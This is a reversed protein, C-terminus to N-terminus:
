PEVHLVTLKPDITRAKEINAVPIHHLGGDSAQVLAHASPTAPVDPALLPAKPAKSAQKGKPSASTKGSGTEASKAPTTAASTFAKLLNPSSEAIQRTQPDLQALKQVAETVADIPKPAPTSKQKAYLLAAKTNDPIAQTQLHEELEQPNKTHFADWLDARQDDNITPDSALIPAAHDLVLSPQTAM